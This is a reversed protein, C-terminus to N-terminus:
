VDFPSKFIANFRTTKKITFGYEMRYGIESSATTLNQTPYAMILFPNYM